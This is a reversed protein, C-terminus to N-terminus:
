LGLLNAQRAFSPSQERVEEFNGRAAVKGEELFLILECHRITALRHAVIITTVAGELDKITEVLSDETEADLASTAEDM